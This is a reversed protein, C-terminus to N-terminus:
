DPVSLLWCVVQPQRMEPLDSGHQSHMVHHVLGLPLLPGVKLEELTPWWSAGEWLPTVLLLRLGRYQRLHRAIRGILSFPPNAYLLSAGLDAWNLSLADRGVANPDHRWSVYRETQASQATAFLDLDPRGLHKCITEFAERRITWDLAMEKRRSIPDAAVQFRGPLYRAQIWWRHSLAFNWAEQAIANLEPIRGGQTNIYSVTTTNDSNFEVVSGPPFHANAQMWKLPSALERRNSSIFVELETASWDSRSTALTTANLAGMALESADLEVSITAQRPVLATGNWDELSLAWWETEELAPGSLPVQMNWSTQQRQHHSLVIQLARTKLRALPIAESAAVALGILKAVDRLRITGSRGAARMQRRLKACKATPLHVSMRSSDVEFGLFVLVHTPTLVSKELLAILGLQDLLVLFEELCRQLHARDQHLLLFDDIYRIVRLGKSRLWAAVPRLLRTFFRPMPSAGFSAGRMQYLRGRHQFQMYRRHAPHIAFLNYGKKFDVKVMWDDPQLLTKLTAFSDMKFHHYQLYVNLPRLDHVVRSKEPESQWVVFVPSVLWARSWPIEEAIGMRTSEQVYRDMEDLDRGEQPRQRLIRRSPTRGQFPLRIGVRIVSMVWRDSCIAAWATTRGLTHAGWEEEPPLLLRRGLLPLWIARGRWQM